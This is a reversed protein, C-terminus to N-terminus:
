TTDTSKCSGPLTRVVKLFHQAVDTAKCVNSAAIYVWGYYTASCFFVNIDRQLISVAVKVFLKSVPVQGGQNEKMLEKCLTLGLGTGKENISIGCPTSSTDFAKPEQDRWRSFYWMM